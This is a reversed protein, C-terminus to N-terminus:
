TPWEISLGKLYAVVGIQDSVANPDFKGDAVYKGRAYLSTMGWLYPSLVEPHYLRYGFGNYQEFLYLCHALSWDTVKDLEMFRLADVASELWTFPPPHSKPRGAPVNVTRGSLPDGNALHATWRGSAELQHIMGVFKAPVGTSQWVAFYRPDFLKACVVRVQAQVAPDVVAEAFHREYEARLQDTFHIITM